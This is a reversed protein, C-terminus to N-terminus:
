RARLANLIVAVDILEQLMAGVAPIIHGNAAIVMLIFSLGIGIFISQKAIHLMRQGISVADAVRTLDDVLLVIDAAEASVATGYAGMAIGVTATALAPADNIGDGVMIVRSYTAALRRVTDVKQQPMLDAYFTQIGAQKAVVAANKEGDGTVMVIEKIGLTHLKQIMAPVEPRIKDSLVIMGICSRNKAVYIVLRNKQFYQNATHQHHNLCGQGVKQDIFAHSGVAYSNQDIEGEVGQGPIERFHAALPLTKRLSQAKAVIAKATSHSSFQDIMAAHYLVDEESEDGLKVVEEVYPTGYTITGTKDFLAAQTTAIQELPAGGKIIIGIDAARNIASIVALPTAIILPCPTAVVLVSLITNPDRTLFYGLAAMLLTLPTFLIAYRDALRQIPAKQEHAQKVMEVIKSYQSERSIKDARMEFAGNVDVSGSLIRDGATKNHTLPEGTIASEDIEASGSVITGDVPILDGPRVILIDGVRVSQVDVEEMQNDTKRRAIRPARKMLATLSSTAKRLGFAEIAEGGSQMLVIIAGAFAQHLFIAALIALTAVIDSAFQGHIMKRFTQYVIPAGGLILTSYWLLSAVEPWLYFFAGILLGSLAFFPLPANNILVWLKQKMSSSGM